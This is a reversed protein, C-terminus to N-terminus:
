DAFEEKAQDIKQEEVSQKRLVNLTKSGLHILSFGGLVILIATKIFRDTLAVLFANAQEYHTSLSLVVALTTEYTGIAGPLIPFLFNLNGITSAFFAISFEYNPNIFQTTILWIVFGEICWVVLSTSLAVWFIYFKTKINKLGFSFTHILRVVKSNISVPLFSFIPIFKNPDVIFLMILGVILVLSGMFAYPILSNIINSNFSIGSFFILGLAFSSVTVLAMMNIVQEVVIVSLGVSYTVNYEDRLAYLRVVEGARGPLFVNLMNSAFSPYMLSRFPIFHEQSQLLIWWRTVRLLLDIVILGMILVLYGKDFSKINNIFTEPNIYIIMAIIFVLSVLIITLDKKKLIKLGLDIM